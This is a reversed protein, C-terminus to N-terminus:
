ALKAETPETGEDPIESARGALARVGARFHPLLHHAAFLRRGRADAVSDGLLVSATSDESYARTVWEEGLEGHTALLLDHGWDLVEGRADFGELLSGLARQQWQEIEELDPRMAPFRQRTADHTEGGSGGAYFDADRRLRRFADRHAPAVYHAVLHERVREAVTDNLARMRGRRQSSDLMAALLVGQDGRYQRAMDAYARTDLAGLTRITIEQLWELARGESRLGGRLEDIRERVDESLTVLAPRYPDPQDNTTTV